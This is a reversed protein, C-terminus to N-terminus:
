KKLQDIMEKIVQCIEYEEDNQWELLARKLKKLPKNEYFAQILSKPAGILEQKNTPLSKTQPDVKQRLKENLKQMWAVHRKMLEESEEQLIKCKLDWFAPEGIFRYGRHQLQYLIKYDSTRSFVIIRCQDTGPLYCLMTFQRNDNYFWHLSREPLVNIERAPLNYIRNGSVDTVGIVHDFSVTFLRKLRMPRARRLLMLLKLIPKAYRNTRSDLYRILYEIERVNWPRRIHIFSSQDSPILNSFYKCAWFFSRKLAKDKEDRHDAKKFFCSEEVNWAQACFKIIASLPLDALDHRYDYWSTENLDNVEKMARQEASSLKHKPHM